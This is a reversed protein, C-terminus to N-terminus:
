HHASPPSGKGQSKKLKKLQHKSLPQQKGLQDVEDVKKLGKFTPLPSPSEDDSSLVSTRGKRKVEIWPGDPPALPAQSSTEAPALPVQSSPVLPDLLPTTDCSKSAVPSPPKEKAVWVRKTVPCAGTNHGLSKCGSCFLLKSPYSVTVEVQVKDETLPDLTVAPISSPLPKGAEYLVCVKAFPLTEFKSTLQDAFLPKGVVSALRSIGEKTWYCDPVNSLKIWIPMVNQTNPEVSKGWPTVVMPKRDFYWTGHALVSHMSAASSFKFIFKRGDKQMVSVLGKSSWLKMAINTVSNLPMTGKTFHGVVCWKFKELGKRLEEDPPCVVSTGAPLPCFDLAIETAQAVQSWSKPKPPESKPDPPSSCSGPNDVIKSKLKNVLPDPLSTEDLVQNTNSLEVRKPMEDFMSAAPNTEGCKLPSPLGNEDRSVFQTGFGDKALDAFMMEESFGKSKLFKLVTFLKGRVKILEEREQKTTRLISHVTATTDNKCRNVTARPSLPEESSYGEEIIVVDDLPIGGSSSPITSENTPKSELHPCIKRLESVSFLERAVSGSIAFPVDSSVVSELLAGDHDVPAGLSNSNSM